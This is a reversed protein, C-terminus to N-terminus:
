LGGRVVALESQVGQWTGGGTMLRGLPPPICSEGMGGDQATCLLFSILMFIIIVFSPFGIGDCLWHVCLLKHFIIHIKSRFSAGHM